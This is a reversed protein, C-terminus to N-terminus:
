FGKSAQTITQVCIPDYYWNTPNRWNGDHAAFHEDRSLFQINDPNGQDEPHKEASRMHQGEFARGNEDYAKGKELIDRQQEPTWDRTGMGNRVYDQERDWAAQIAKNSESTRKSM